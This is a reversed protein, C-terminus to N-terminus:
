LHGFAKWLRDRNCSDPLNSLFLSTANRLRFERSVFRKEQRIERGGLVLRWVQANFYKRESFKRQEEQKKRRPDQPTTM